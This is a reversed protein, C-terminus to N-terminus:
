KHLCAAGGAGPRRAGAHGGGPVDARVGVPLSRCLCRRQGGQLAQPRRVQLALWPALPAAQHSIWSLLRPMSYYAM